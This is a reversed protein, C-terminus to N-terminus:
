MINHPLSVAATLDKELNRMSLLSDRLKSALCSDNRKEKEPEIGVPTEEPDDLDRDDAEHNDAVNGDRINKSTM